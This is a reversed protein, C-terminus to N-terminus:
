SLKMRDFTKNELEELTGKLLSIIGLLELESFGNIHVNTTLTDDDAQTVLIEVTPLKEEPATEESM